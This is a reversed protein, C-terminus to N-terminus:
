VVHALLLRARGALKVRLRLKGRRPRCGGENSRRKIKCGLGRTGPGFAAPARLVCHIVASARTGYARRLKRQLRRLGEGVMEIRSFASSTLSPWQARGGDPFVRPNVRTASFLPNTVGKRSCNM